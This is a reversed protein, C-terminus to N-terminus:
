HCVCVQIADDRDALAARQQSNMSGTQELGDQFVLPPHIVLCQSSCPAIFEDCFASVAM